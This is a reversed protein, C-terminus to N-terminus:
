VVNKKIKNFHKKVSEAIKKELNIKKAKKNLPKGKKATKFKYEHKIEEILKNFVGNDILNNMINETLQDINTKDNSKIKNSKISVTVDNEKNERVIEAHTKNVPKASVEINHELVLESEWPVFYRDDVIVELRSKCKNSKVEGILPPVDVTYKDLKKQCRYLYIHNDAELLLRVDPHSNNSSGEVKVDFELTNKKSLSLKLKNM